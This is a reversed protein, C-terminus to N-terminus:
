GTVTWGKATAISPTDTATGYNGTVTVTQGTVTPLATYMDNLATASMKANAVTFTFKLPLTTKALSYCSEIVSVNSTLTGFTLSGINMLSYCGTFLYNISVVAPFSNAPTSVLSTCNQYMGTIANVLNSNLFKAGVKLSTCTHFLNSLNVNSNSLNITGANVIKTNTFMFSCDTAKSFDSIPVTTISTTGFAGSGATFRGTGSFIIEVDTLSYCTSCLNQISFDTNGVFTISLKYLKYCNSFMDRASNCNFVLTSTVLSTCGSFMFTATIGSTTNFVQIPSVQLKTCNYFCYDWKTIQATNFGFLVEGLNFCSHFLYSLNTLTASFQGISCRELRNMNFYRAFSTNSGTSLNISTAFPVNINIDLIGSVMPYSTNMTIMTNAKNLQVTILNQGAQPTITIIRQEYTLSGVLNGTYTYKYSATTGSAYDTVTGDGWDITYAGIFSFAVYNSDTNEVAYLISIKQVGNVNDSIPLWDPNRVYPEIVPGGSTIDGIKTSYDRFKTGVPITVGKAEIADKIAVKTDQLYLLKEATGM